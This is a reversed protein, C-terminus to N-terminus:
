FRCSVTVDLGDAMYGGRMEYYFQAERLSASYSVSGAEEGKFSYIYAYKKNWWVMYFASSIIDIATAGAWIYSCYLGWRKYLKRAHPVRMKKDMIALQALPAYQNVAAAGSM